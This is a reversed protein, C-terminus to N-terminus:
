QLLGSVGCKPCTIQLPLKGVAQFATQCSPCRVDHTPMGTAADIGASPETTPEESFAATQSARRKKMYAMMAIGGVILLVLVGAIILWLWLMDKPAAETVGAFGEISHSKGAPTEVQDRKYVIDVRYAAGSKAETSNDLWTGQKLSEYTGNIQHAVVPVCASEGDCTTRWIQIGQVNSGPDPIPADPSLRVPPPLNVADPLTWSVLNGDEQQQATVEVLRNANAIEAIDIPREGVVITYHATATSGGGSFAAVHFYWVGDRPIELSQSPSVSGGTYFTDTEVVKYQPEQNIAYHYQVTSQDDAAATWSVSGIRTPTPTNARWTPSAIVPTPTPPSLDKGTKASVSFSPATPAVDLPRIGSYQRRDVRKKLPDFCPGEVETDNAADYSWGCPLSADDFAAVAFHYTTDSRLGVITAKQFQGPPALGTSDPDFTVSIAPPGKSIVTSVPSGDPNRPAAPDTDIVGKTGPATPSNFDNPGIKQESVKIRYGAVTGFELGDDAPATWTLTVSNASTLATVVNLGTVNGPPLIDFVQGRSLAHTQTSVPQREGALVLEPTSEWISFPEAGITDNGIDNRTLPGSLYIKATETRPINEVAGQDRMGSVGGPEHKINYYQFSSRVLERKSGDDVPESFVVTMDTRGESTDVRVIVPAAGDKEFGDVPRLPLMRNGTIDTLGRPNTGAVPGVYELKPRQDTDPEPGKTFTLIVISCGTKRDCDSDAPTTDWTRAGTVKRGAVRWGTDYGACSFTPGLMRPDNCFTGPDIPESFVLRYGDIYGDGELVQGTTSLRPTDVTTASLLVPAAGDTVYVSADCTVLRFPIDCIMGMSNANKYPPTTPQGPHSLDTFLGEGMTRIAMSKKGSAMGTGADTDRYGNVAKFIGYRDNAKGNGTDLRPGFDGPGGPAADTDFFWITNPANNDLKDIQLLGIDCTTPGAPCPKCQQPPTQKVPPTGVVSHCFTSDDVPENFEVFIAEVIGDRDLDATTANLIAPRVLDILDVGPGGIGDPDSCPVYAFPGELRTGKIADCRVGIKAATDDVDTPRIKKDLTLVARNSGPEHQVSLIGGPGQGTGDAAIMFLAAPQLKVADGTKDSVPGNFNLTVSSTDINGVANRVAPRSVIVGTEVCGEPWCPGAPIARLALHAENKPKWEKVIATCPDFDPAICPTPAAQDLALTVRDGSVPHADAAGVFGVVNQGNGKGEVTCTAPQAYQAQRKLPVVVVNVNTKAMSLEESLGNDAGICNKGGTVSGGPVPTCPPPSQDGCMDHWYLDTTRVCPWALCDDPDLLNTPTRVGPNPGTGNVRESFTVIVEEAGEYAFASVLVPKAGDRVNVEGPTGKYIGLPNGAIDAFTGVRGPAPYIIQPRSGTDYKYGEALQLKLTLELNVCESPEPTPPPCNKEGDNSGLGSQLSERTLPLVSYPIPTLSLDQILFAQGDFTDPDMEESFNLVLEDILGNQNTDRTVAGTITPAKNDAVMCFSPSAATTDVTVGTPDYGTVKIPFVSRIAPLTTKLKVYPIGTGDGISSGSVPETVRVHHAIDVNYADGTAIPKLAPPTFLLSDKTVSTITYDGVAEGSTVHLKGGVTVGAERFDQTSDRLHTTDSGASAAGPLPGAAKVAEVKYVHPDGSVRILDDKVAFQSIFQAPPTTVPTSAIVKSGPVVTVTDPGNQQTYEGTATPPIRFAIDFETGPGGSLVMGSGFALTRMAGATTPNSASVQEFGAAGSGYKKDGWEIQTSEFKVTTLGGAVGTAVRVTAVQWVGFNPDSKGFDPRVKLAPSNTAGPCSVFTEGGVPDFFPGTFISLTETEDAAAPQVVIAGLLGVLLIAAMSANRVPTRLAKTLSGAVM